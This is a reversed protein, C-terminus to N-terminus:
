VCLRLSFAAFIRTQKKEADGRKGQAAKKSVSESTLCLSTKCVSRQISSGGKADVNGSVAM